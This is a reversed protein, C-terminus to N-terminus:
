QFGDKQTCEQHQQVEEQEPEERNLIDDQREEDVLTDGVLETTVEEEHLEIAVNEVDRQKIFEQKKKHKKVQTGGPRTNRGVLGGRLNVM